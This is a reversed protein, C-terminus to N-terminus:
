CNIIKCIENENKSLLIFIADTHFKLIAIFMNLQGSDTTIPVM